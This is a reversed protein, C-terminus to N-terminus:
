DDLDHYVRFGLGTLAVIGFAGCAMMPSAIDPGAGMLRATAFAGTVALLLLFVAGVLRSSRARERERRQAARSLGEALHIHLSEEDAWEPCQFRSGYKRVSDIFAQQREEVPGDPPQRLFPRIGYDPLRRRALELERQVISTGGDQWASGFTRGLILVFVRCASIIREIEEETADRSLYSWPDYGGLGRIWAELKPHLERFESTSSLFVTAKGAWRQRAWLAGAAVCLGAFIAAFIALFVPNM